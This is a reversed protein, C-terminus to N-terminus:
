SPVYPKVIVRRGDEGSNGNRDTVQLRVEVTTDLIEDAGVEIFVFRGSPLTNYGDGSDVYPESIPPIDASLRGGELTFVDWRSKPGDSRSTGPDLGKIRAHGFIHRGGQPGEVLYVEGGELLPEYAELGTGVEVVVPGIPGADTSGGDDGCAILSLALAFAAAFSSTFPGRSSTGWASMKWRIKAIEVTFTL